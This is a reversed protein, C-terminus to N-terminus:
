VAASREPGAASGPPWCPSKGYGEAGDQLSEALEASKPMVQPCWGSLSLSNDSFSSSLTLTKPQSVFNKELTYEPQVCRTPGGCILWM